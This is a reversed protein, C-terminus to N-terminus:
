LPKNKIKGFPRPYADPTHATKRIVIVKHIADGCPYEYVSEVSGGLTRIANGAEELEEQALSGKMALFAGGKRVLPLCLECLVNLRAVARSAAFDFSERHGAAFEEARATVCDAELGLEPLVEERLWTMRKGLSDLLTLRLSPEGIKLPVGPFGAGCGVDVLSKGRLDAAGLLALSDLFHLTAVKEPERIATLNMVKNKELLLEGFSCLQGLQQESLSLSLQPLGRLLTEKM